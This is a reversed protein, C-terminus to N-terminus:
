LTPVIKHTKMVSVYTEDRLSVSLQVCLSSWASGRRQQLILKEAATFLFEIQFYIFTLPKLAASCHNLGNGLEAGGRGMRKLGEEIWLLLFSDPDHKKGLFFQCQINVRLFGCSNLFMGSNVCCM